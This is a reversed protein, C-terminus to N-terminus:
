TIEGVKKTGQWVECVPCDEDQDAQEMAQQDDEANVDKGKVIRGEPETLKYVRYHKM